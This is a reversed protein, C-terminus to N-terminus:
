AILRGAFFQYDINDAADAWRTSRIIDLGQDEFPKFSAPLINVLRTAVLQADFLPSSIRGLRLLYWAAIFLSCPYKKSKIYDTLQRKLKQDGVEALVQDCIPILSSERFILDPRYGKQSLWHGFETYDFSPDPFSYDDVMVVLSTSRGAQRAEGVLESLIDIALQHEDGIHQNTDIHAYEISLDVAM